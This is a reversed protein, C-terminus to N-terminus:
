GMCRFVVAMCEVKVIMVRVGALLWPKFRCVRCCASQVAALQQWCHQREACRSGVGELMNGVEGCVGSSALGARRVVMEAAICRVRWGGAGEVRFGAREMGLGWFRVM